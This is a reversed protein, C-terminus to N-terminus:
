EVLFKLDMESRNNVRDITFINISYEGNEEITIPQVYEKADDGNVAYWIGSSSSAADTAALYIMTGVPYIDLVNDDSGTSTGIRSINFNSIIEPPSNDVVMNISQINEVNNVRDLASIQLTYRGENNISIPKSYIEKPESGDLSYRIEKVGSSEDNANLIIQSNRTIWHIDRQTYHDGAVTFSSTPPTVDMILTRTQRTGENELNDIAWFGVERNGSQASLRFPTDYTLASGGDIQYEIKNVGSRNDNATLEVTSRTSIYQSNGEYSDGLTTLTVQPSTRDLYFAFESRQEQNGVHDISYYRLVHEGDPVNNLEIPSDNYVRKEGNNIQYYTTEVGSLEDNSHLTISAEVSINSGQYIGSVEHRTVPASLDVTFAIGKPIESNGVKDVSYYWIDYKKEQSFQLPGNYSSYGSGDISVYITAVGSNSDTSTLRSRLGEGYFQDNDVNIFLEANEKHITTQPADGDAQFQLLFTDKTAINVWRIYQNGSLELNIHSADANEQVENARVLMEELLFSPAGQEPSTALRIYFPLELPWYLKQSETNEYPKLDHRLQEPGYPQAIVSQGLFASIIICFIIGRYNLLSKIYNM